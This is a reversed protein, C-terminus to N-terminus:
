TAAFAGVQDLSSAFAILRLAVSARLHAEDGRRRVAGAPQRVSGGTDTGLAVPAMSSAVAARAGAAAAGVRCAPQHGLSQPLPLIPILEGNSILLDWRSSTPIPRAWSERRGQRACGISSAANYVRVYGRLIRSGCTTEIGQTSLVDKIAIPVGMLPPSLNAATAGAVRCGRM